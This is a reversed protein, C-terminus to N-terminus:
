INLEWRGVQMMEGYKIGQSAAKNVSQQFSKLMAQSGVPASHSFGNRTLYEAMHKTANPHM